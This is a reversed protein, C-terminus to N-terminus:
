LSVFGGREEYAGGGEDDEIAEGVAMCLAAIPDIRDASRAKDPKINGAPDESVMVNGAAWRLVPHGGHRLDGGLFLRELEKAPPSMSVYGQGVKVVTFGDQALETLLKQGGFRDYGISEIVFRGGLDNVRSRIWAYDVVNGETLELWGEAAWALYSVGESQERVEAMYRPAWCYTLVACVDPFYLMFSSLDRNSSLDLGGYCRRGDLGLEEIFAELGGLGNFDGHVDEMRPVACADWFEMPVWAVESQTRGNLRLRIFTNRKRPNQKALRFERTFEAPKISVGWNPNVKRHAEEDTWADADRVDVYDDLIWLAPLFEPDEVTGQRVKDAHAEKENCISGERVFDRTTIYVVVPQRRTGTASTLVDVLDSGQQVHLEDVIAAHVNLGHKTKAEKSLARYFSGLAPYEILKMSPKPKALVRSLMSDNAVMQAAHKYIIAAQERDGAASYIQAGPEGDAVLLYLVIGAMLPTKGNKRPIECFLERYRRLGDSSRKWGFLNMVIAQQWLELLFPRGAWEGEVLTLCEHFFDVARVAAESDFYCDGAQERPDYKPLLLIIEEPELAEASCIARWQKDSAREKLAAEDLQGDPDLDLLALRAAQWADAKAEAKRKELRWARQQESLGAEARRAADDRDRPSSGRSGM